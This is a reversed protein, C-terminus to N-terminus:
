NLFDIEDDIIICGQPFEPSCAGEIPMDKIKVNNKVDKKATEISLNQNRKDKMKKDNDRM